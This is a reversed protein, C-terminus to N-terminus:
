KVFYNAWTQYYEGGIEGKLPAGGKFQNNTKMWAPPSFPSGFLKIKHPSLKQAMKIYPIQLITIIIINQSKTTKNNKKCVKWELDEKQLAFHTLNLDGDVDDYSYPRDSYDTGAIPIRGMSYEIGDSSFYSDILANALSEPVQKLMQGTSDTFAGGFGFISQLKQTPDITV